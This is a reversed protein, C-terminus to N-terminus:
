GAYEILIFGLAGNKGDIWVNNIMGGGTGGGGLQALKGAGLCHTIGGGDAVSLPRTLGRCDDGNTGPCGRIKIGNTPTIPDGGAGGYGANGGTGSGGRVGGPATYSSNFSSDGGDTAVVIDGSTGNTGGTGGAGIVYPYSQNKTLTIYFRIEGGEGGGGGCTLIDTRAPGGGGGGGKLTIRYVGTRPATYSGSTQSFYMHDFKGADLADSVNTGLTALNGDDIADFGKVVNYAGLAAAMNAGQRWVKNCMKSSAMSSPSMGGTIEPAAAYAAQTVVNASGGTAFGIFDNTPM